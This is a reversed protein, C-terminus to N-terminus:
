EVAVRRWAGDIDIWLRNDRGVAMKATHTVVPNTPIFYYQSHPYVPQPKVEEGYAGTLQLTPVSMSPPALHSIDEVLQDVPASIADSAGAGGLVDHTNAVSAAAGGSLVVGLLGFGKIFKRRDNM